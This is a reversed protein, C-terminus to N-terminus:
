AKAPPPLKRLTKVHDKRMKMVWHDLIKFGRDPDGDGISAVIEPPVVFEGGAAAIDVPTDDVMGGAARKKMGPPKPAGAGRKISPSKGIGYPGNQGFMESLVTMGANTNNQGLHSVTEAPIVYSNPPVSIPHNDTRGPVTSNIPGSHSPKKYLSRPTAAPGGAARKARRAVDLAIAVAQRHPYKESMLRRINGSVAQDSGGKTLPM